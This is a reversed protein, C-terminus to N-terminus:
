IWGTRMKGCLNNEPLVWSRMPGAIIEDFGSNKQTISVGTLM